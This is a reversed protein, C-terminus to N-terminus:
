VADHSTTDALNPANMMLDLASMPEMTAAGVAPGNVSHGVVAGLVFMAIAVFVGYKNM